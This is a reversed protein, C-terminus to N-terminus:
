GDLRRDLRRNAEAGELDGGVGAGLLRGLLRRLDGSEEVDDVDLGPLEALLEEGAPHERRARRERRQLM